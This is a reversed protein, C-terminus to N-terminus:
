RMPQAAVSVDKVGALRAQDMAEVMLGARADKDAQIIVGAQPNAARMRGIVARLTRIDVRQKDIWVEGKPSIAVIINNREERVATQATPRNIHIGAETVFTNTIIFFILLNLVFDLMPALDIGHSDEAPQTHRSFRM